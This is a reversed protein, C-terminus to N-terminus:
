YLTPVIPLTLSVTVRWTWESSRRQFRDALHRASASGPSTAMQDLTLAGGVDRALRAHFNRFIPVRYSDPGTHRGLWAFRTTATGRNLPALRSNIESFPRTTRVVPPPTLHPSRDRGRARVASRGPVSSAPSDPGMRDYRYTFNEEGEGGRFRLTTRARVGLEASDNENSHRTDLTATCCTARLRGQM